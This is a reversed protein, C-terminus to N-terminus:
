RSMWSAKAMIRYQLKSLGDMYSDIRKHYGTLFWQGAYKAGMRVGASMKYVQATEDAYKPSLEFYKKAVERFTKAEHTLESVGGGEPSVGPHPEM